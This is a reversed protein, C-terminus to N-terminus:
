ELGVLIPLLVDVGVIELSRFFVGFELSKRSLYWLLVELGLDM